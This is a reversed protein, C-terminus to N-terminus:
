TYSDFGWWKLMENVVVCICRGFASGPQTDRGRDGMKRGDVAGISGSDEFCSEGLNRNEEFALLLRPKPRLKRKTRQPGSAARCGLRIRTLMSCIVRRDGMRWGQIEVSARGSTLCANRRKTTRAKFLEGRIQDISDVGQEGMVDKVILWDAALM